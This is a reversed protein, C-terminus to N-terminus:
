DPWEAHYVDRGLEREGIRYIVTQNSAEIRLIDDTLTACPHCHGARIQDLVEAAILIHPDAETIRLDAGEYVLTLRGLRPDAELLHIVPRDVM